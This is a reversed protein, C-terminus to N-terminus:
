NNLENQAEKYAEEEAQEKQIEAVEAFIEKELEPSIIYKGKPAEIERKTLAYNVVNDWNESGKILEIKLNETIAKKNQPKQQVSDINIVENPMEDTTYPLGGLVENFCMRFGQSIAVKKTMTVPKEAWFKNPRGEKTRQVYEAYYVEHTFPHTFDKRYITIVAKLSSNTVKGTTEVKWGDLRGSMEARKIYVEYGVLISFKRYKGQGYATIYAERKFPNLENMICIQIFQKKENEEIGSFGYMDLFSMIDKEKVALNNNAKQIEM